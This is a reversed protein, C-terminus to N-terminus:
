RGERRKLAEYERDIWHGNADTHRRAWEDGERVVGYMVFAFLLVAAILVFAVLAQAAEKGFAFAVLGVIGLSGILFHM